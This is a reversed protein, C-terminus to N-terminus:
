SSNECLPYNPLAEWFTELEAAQPRLDGGDVHVIHSRLSDNFRSSIPDAGGKDIERNTAVLTMRTDWHVYRDEVIQFIKESAWSQSGEAGDENQARNYWRHFEDLALVKLTKMSEMLDYFTNDHYAARLNDLM